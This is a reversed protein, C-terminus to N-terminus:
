FIANFFAEIREKSVAHGDVHYLRNADMLQELAAYGQPDADVVRKQYYTSQTQAEADLPQQGYDGLYWNHLFLNHTSENMSFQSPEVSYFINERITTSDAFGDWSDSCIMTHDMEKTPKQGSHIINHHIQTDTVRGAIHISPSFMGGTRTTKPRIGDGISINYRVISHQNGLSYNREAGADCVLVMGGYNDHSYNYQIVTNRCNYDCDYGQADWPAKHGSVENFQILTDDCSWPWIGAAAESPPLIDPGDRMINYEILTHECGIPVIGDGPVQEILNHSVITNTSPLWHHRDYYGSWIMANRECRLIHCNTIRLSDFRSVVQRGGNAILMGSGGGEEKVLSGNVDRVTVSDITINRSVGYDKCEVKLGTRGALRTEGTNVIELGRVTLYESNLVRMTWATQNGTVVPRAGEGYAGILVPQAASGKGSVDLIGEFTQGRHLLLCDGAGLQLGKTRELTKWAKAASTGEAADDGHLADVYYTRGPNMGSCSLSSLLLLLTVIRM